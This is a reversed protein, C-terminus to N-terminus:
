LLISGMREAKNSAASFHALGDANKTLIQCARGSKKEFFGAGSEFYLRISIQRCRHRRPGGGAENCHGSAGRRQFTVYRKLDYRSALIAVEGFLSLLVGSM